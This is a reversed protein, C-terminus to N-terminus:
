TLSSRYRKYMRTRCVVPLNVVFPERRKISVTSRKPVARVSVIIVCCVKKVSETRWAEKYVACVCACVCLVASMCVPM